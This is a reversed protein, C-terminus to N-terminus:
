ISFLLAAVLEDVGIDLARSLKYAEILSFDRRGALKSWMQGYSMGLDEAFRKKTIHKKACYQSVKDQLNMDM